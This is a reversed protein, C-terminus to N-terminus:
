RISSVMSRNRSSCGKSTFLDGRWSNGTTSWRWCSALGALRIREEAWGHDYAYDKTM